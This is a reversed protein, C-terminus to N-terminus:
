KLNHGRGEPGPSKDFLFKHANDSSRSSRERSAGTFSLNVKYVKEVSPNFSFL